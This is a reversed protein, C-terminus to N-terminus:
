SDGRTDCGSWPLKWEGDAGREPSVTVSGLKCDEASLFVVSAGRREALAHVRPWLRQAEEDRCASDRLLCRSLYWFWLERRGEVRGDTFESRLVEVM